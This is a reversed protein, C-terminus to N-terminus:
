KLSLIKKLWEGLLELYGPVFRSPSAPSAPNKSDVELVGHGANDLIKIMYNPHQGEELARRIKEASEEVPVTFDHKGFIVLAPCTIKKYLPIPDFDVDLHLFWGPDGMRQEQKEYFAEWSIEETTPPMFRSIRPNERLKRIKEDLREGGERYKVFDFLLNLVEGTQNIEEQSYNMMKMINSLTYIEQIRPSVGPGSHSIFFSIDDSLSAALPAIWGGQSVGYLGIKKSDIREHSKLSSVAAIVDSALEDFDARRWDGQSEGCGRKDFGLVAIGSHLFFHSLVSVQDRTGPGSGHIFIIAPHKGKKAPFKLTGKLTIDGNQFSFDEQIFTEAKKAFIAKFSGREWRLGSVEGSNEVVFEAKIDVPFPTTFSPGSFFSTDSLAFLSGVRGTESDYFSFEGEEGQQSLRFISIYRKSELYYEGLYKDLIDKDVQVIQLFQAEGSVRGKRVRGQLASDQFVLDFVFNEAEGPIEFHLNTGERTLALISQSEEALITSLFNGPLFRVEGKIVGEKEEFKVKFFNWRGELEFGGVWDGVIEMLGKEQDSSFIFMKGLNFFIFLPIFFSAVKRLM